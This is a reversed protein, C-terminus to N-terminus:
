MDAIRYNAHLPCGGPPAPGMSLPMCGSAHVAPGGLGQQTCLKCRRGHMVLLEQCRSTDAQLWEPV